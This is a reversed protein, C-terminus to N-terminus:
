SKIWSIVYKYKDSECRVKKFDGTINMEKMYMDIHALAIGIDIKNMSGKGSTYIHLDENEKIIRWPQSNMSSPALRVMELVEKYIDDIDSTLPTSFNNEFFIESFEKRNGNNNILKQIFSKSDSEYGIPSVIPLIEDERLNITKKFSSRSFTGGLWVTSLGLSTCYLITKEFTYGVAELSFEKNECAAILFYKAGKIVGYTGLRVVGDYNEKKILSVRVKIDFPNDVNNIYNEIEEILDESIVKDSYSRVSKRQKIIETISKIYLTNM